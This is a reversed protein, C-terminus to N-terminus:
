RRQDIFISTLILVGQITIKITCIDKAENETIHQPLCFILKTRAYVLANTAQSLNNLKVM